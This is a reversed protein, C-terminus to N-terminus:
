YIPTYNTINDQTPYITVIDDWQCGKEQVFLSETIVKGQRQGTTPAAEGGTNLDDPVPGM